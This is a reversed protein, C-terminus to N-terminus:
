RRTEGAQLPWWGGRQGGDSVEAAYARRHLQHWSFVLVKQKHHAASPTPTSTRIKSAISGGSLDVDFHQV